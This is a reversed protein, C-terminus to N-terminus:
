KAYDTQAAEMDEVAQYFDGREIYLTILRQQALHRQRSDGLTAAREWADIKIDLDDGADIVQAYLLLAEPHDHALELVRQLSTEAGRWNENEMQRKALALRLTM